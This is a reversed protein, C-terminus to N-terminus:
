ARNGNIDFEYGNCEITDDVMEDSMLYEYESQLADFFWDNVARLCEAAWEALAICQAAIRPHRSEDIYGCDWNVHFDSNRRNECEARAEVYGARILAAVRRDITPAAPLRLEPAVDALAGAQVALLLALANVTGTFSSGQGQHYFGSFYRKREDIDIALAACVQSHWDYVSDWWEYDLGGDRWWNRAREKAAEPLEIFRYVWSTQTRM